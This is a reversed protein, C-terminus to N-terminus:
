DHRLAEMPDVRTARRAPFYCAALAAAPLALNGTLYPITGIPIWLDATSYFAFRREFLRHSLLVLPAAAGAPTFVRGPRARGAYPRPQLYLANLLSFIATNAGIGLALSLVVIATFGPNRRLLRLAFRLQLRM